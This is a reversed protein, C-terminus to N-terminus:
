GHLIIKKRTSLDPVRVLDKKPETKTTMMVVAVAGGGALQRGVDGSLCFSTAFRLV